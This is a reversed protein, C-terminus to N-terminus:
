GGGSGILKVIIEALAATEADFLTWAMVDLQGQLLLALHQDFFGPPQLPAYPLPLGRGFSLDILPLLSVKAMM